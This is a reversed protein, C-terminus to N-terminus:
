LRAEIQIRRPRNSDSGCRQLGVDDAGVGINHAKGDTFLAYKDNLSHCTSCNGKKADMFIQLGRIQSPTLASKDGSFEYRDFASNGSLVTREFSAIANEIRELTVGGPGFAQNFLAAYRPDGALKAVSVDHPQNMEVPNAIPSAAQEELSAARGDWFQLPLYAANVISPANRVGTIGGM